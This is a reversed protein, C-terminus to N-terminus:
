LKIKNKRCFITWIIIGFLFWALLGQVIFTERCIWLAILLGVIITAILWRPRLWRWFAVTVVGAVILGVLKLLFQQVAPYDHGFAIVLILAVAAIIGLVLAILHRYRWVTLLFRTMQWDGKKVKTM